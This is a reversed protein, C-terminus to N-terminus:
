FHIYIYLPFHSANPQASIKSQAPSPLLWPSFNLGWKAAFDSWSTRDSVACLCHQPCLSPLPPLAKGWNEASWAPTSCWKWGFPLVGFTKMKHKQSEQHTRRLQNGRCSRRLSIFSPQMTKIVRLINDATSIISLPLLFEQELERLSDSFYGLPRLLLHSPDSKSQKNVWICLILIFRKQKLFEQPYPRPNM